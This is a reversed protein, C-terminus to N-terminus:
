KEAESRTLFIVKGFEEPRAHEPEPL